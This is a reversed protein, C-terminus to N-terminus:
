SGEGRGDHRTIVWVSPRVRPPHCKCERVRGEKSRHRKKSVKKFIENGYLPAPSLHFNETRYYTYIFHAYIGLLHLYMRISIPRPMFIYPTTSVMLTWETPVVLLASPQQFHRARQQRLTALPYLITISVYFPTLLLYM